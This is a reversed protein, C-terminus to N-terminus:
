WRRSGGHGAGARASNGGGAGLEESRRSRGALDDGRRHGQSRPLVPRHRTQAHHRRRRHRAGQRGQHPGPHPSRRRTRLAFVRRCERGAHHRSRRGGRQRRPLVHAHRGRHCYESGGAVAGHTGRSALRVPVERRQPRQGLVVAALVAVSVVLRLKMHNGNYPIPFREPADAAPPIIKDDTLSVSGSFGASGRLWSSGM